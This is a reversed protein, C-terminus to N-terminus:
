GFKIKLFIQAVFGGFMFLQGMWLWFSFAQPVHFCHAAPRIYVTSYAAMRGVLFLGNLVSKVSIYDDSSVSQTGGYMEEDPSISGEIYDEWSRGGDDLAKGQLCQATSEGMFGTTAAVLNAAMLLAFLATVIQWYKM